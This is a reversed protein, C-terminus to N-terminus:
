PLACSVLPVESDRRHALLRSAHSARIRTSSVTALHEQLRSSSAFEGLSQASQSRPAAPRLPGVPGPPGAERRWGPAACRQGGTRPPSDGGQPCFTPPSPAPEGGGGETRGDSRWRRGLHTGRGLLGGPAEERPPQHPCSPSRAAVTLTTQSAKHGRLNSPVM